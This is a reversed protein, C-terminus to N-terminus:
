ATKPTRTVRRKDKSQFRIRVSGNQPEDKVIRVGLNQRDAAQRLMYIARKAADEPVTVGRPKGDKHSEAVADLFPNVVDRNRTISPLPADEVSVSIGALPDTAKAPATKAPATKAPATAM